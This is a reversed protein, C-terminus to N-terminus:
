HGIKVKSITQSVEILHEFFNASATLVRLQRMFAHDRQGSSARAMRYSMRDEFCSGWSNDENAEHQRMSALVNERMELLNTYFSEYGQRSLSTVHETLAKIRHDEDLQDYWISVQELDRNFTDQKCSDISGDVLDTAVNGGRAADAAYLLSQILKKRQDNSAKNALMALTIKFGAFSASSLGQVYQLLVHARDGPGALEARNIVKCLGVVFRAKM